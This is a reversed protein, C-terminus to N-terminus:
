RRLLINSLFNQNISDNQIWKLHSCHPEYNIPTTNQTLIWVSTNGQRFSDRVYLALSAYVEMKKVREAFLSCTNAQRNYEIWKTTYFKADSKYGTWTQHDLTQDNYLCTLIFGSFNFFSWAWTRIPPLPVGLRLFFTYLNIGFTLM